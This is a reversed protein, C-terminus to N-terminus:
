WRKEELVVIKEEQGGRWVEAERGMGDRAGAGAEEGVQVGVGEGVEVEQGRRERQEPMRAKSIPKTPPSSPQQGQRM